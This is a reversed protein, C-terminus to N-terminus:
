GLEAIQNVVDTITKSSDDVVGSVKDSQQASYCDGMIGTLGADISQWAPNAKGGPFVASTKQLIYDGPNMTKFPTPSLSQLYPAIYVNAFGFSSELLARFSDAKSVSGGDIPLDTAGAACIAFQNQADAEPLSTTIKRAAFDPGPMGDVDTDIQACCTEFQRLFTIWDTLQSEATAM